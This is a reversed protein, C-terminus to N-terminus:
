YKILKSKYTKGDAIIELFYLGNSLNSIDLSCGNLIFNMRRLDVSYIILEEIELEQITVIHSAPNPYIKATYNVIEDLQSHDCLEYIEEGSNCGTENDHINIYEQNNSLYDCISKVNCVSLNPNNYLYVGGSIYSENLSQLSSLLPNDNISLFGMTDLKELGDLSTLLDNFRIKLGSVIYELNNLGNLDTLLDNNFIKFDEHARKLGELGHLNTLSQNDEILFESSVYKLSSLNQLHLLSDNGIINLIRITDLNDLGELTKLSNNEEILVIGNAFILSELQAISSLHNNDKVFFHWGISDLNELGSFDYLSDNEIIYVYGGISNINSLGHLNKINGDITDNIHVSGEIKTCNPNELIFNDIDQQSYFNIGDPFCGLYNCIEKIETPSNCGIANDNINAKEPSINILDCLLNINCNSLLPNENIIVTDVNIHNFGSLSYIDTLKNNSTIAIDGNFSSLNELGNLDRLESNATIYLGDGITDLNQLGSFDQISDNLVMSIGQNIKRLNGLGNFSKLGYMQHIALGGGIQELNELGYFNTIKSTYDFYFNNGVIKLSELGSLDHIENCYQLYYAGAIKTINNLGSLSNLNPCIQILVDGGVYKIQALSDLSTISEGSVYLGGLISDCDPYNSPFNDIQSQSMFNIGDPLCGQSFTLYPFLFLFILLFRRKM